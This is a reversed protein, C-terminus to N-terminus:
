FLDQTDTTRDTRSGLTRRKKPGLELPSTLAVGCMKSIPFVDSPRFKAQSQFFGQHFTQEEFWSAFVQSLHEQFMAAKLLDLALELPPMFLLRFFLLLTATDGLVIQHLLLM